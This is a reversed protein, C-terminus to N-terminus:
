HKFIQYKRVFFIYFWVFLVAGKIISSGTLAWWIGTLGFLGSFIITGPIRIINGFIGVVSPIYSLGMGNFAGTTTLELCTFIQSYSLIFLYAAGIQLSLEDKLFISFLFEPFLMLVITNFCGVVLMIYSATKFGQWVRDIKKAGYNQGVFSGVATGFGAATMWSISEIQGGLRQVGIAVPSYGSIIRAIVISIGAFIASHISPSIGTKIIKYIHSFSITFFDKINHFFPFHRHFCSLFLCVVIVDATLSAIAAGKVGWEPFIWVGHILLPDLIVNVVVGSCNFYFPLKSRGLGNYISTFSVYIFFFFIGIIFYRLYIIANLTADFGNIDNSLKFFGIVNDAFLYSVSCYLLALFVTLWLGSVIFSKISYNDGEGASQSVNVELGIKTIFAVSMGLWGFFGATGVATVAGTGLQGVWFMDTLNYLM